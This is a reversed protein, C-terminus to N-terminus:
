YRSMQAVSKDYITNLREIYKVPSFGSFIAKRAEQSLAQLEDRAADLRTIARVITETDKVKVLFGNVGDKVVEGMSGVETVVPVQGFSMCELLAVPLGEYFSPLLFVHCRKLLETKEQGSVVGEYVFNEKLREQFLEIYHGDCQDKGALHLVFDLHETKLQEAAKLVYGIGKNPEIRGLYLIHLTADRYNERRFDKADSLEVCNPLVDVHAAEYEQEVTDKEKDSLMIFPCTWSFVESLIKRIIWPKDKKFLYLGGHLHVVMKRHQRYAYRLFFFDRIISLTDLPYNYHILAAPNKRLIVKWERYARMVRVVRSLGKGEVDQRGQQFHLYRRGTNNEIIFRAVASVGSVNKSSDLSPAVIIIGNDEM